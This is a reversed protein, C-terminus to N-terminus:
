QQLAKQAANKGAIFGSTWAWQLNYGGCIGDVDILEGALFLGPVIRSEMQGTIESVPVGGCTVQASEYRKTSQIMVTTQKVQRIIQGTQKQLAKESLQSVCLESLKLKRCIMGALKNNLIGALIQYWNKQMGHSGAEGTLFDRLATENTGPLFDVYVQVKKKAALALSAFRSIQFVPIGSIGSDTFQVEGTDSAVEERDALLTVRADCRVGAVSKLWRENSLLPVLAPLPNKISHGLGHALLYGSGDSGTKPAAQGGTALILARAHFQETKTHVAFGDPEPTIGSIQIETLIKINLQEAQWLLADRITSAQSTRPYYYGNREKSWVGLRRFFAISDQWSFQALADHVFAPDDCRYCGSGQKQNTFNCKGNGTSLLKKAPATHHDLIMVHRGSEAATIAAMLGSAGGGIVIVDSATINGKKNM